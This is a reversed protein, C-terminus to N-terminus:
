DFFFEGNKYGFVFSHKEGGEIKEVVFNRGDDDRIVSMGSVDPLAIRVARGGTQEALKEIIEQPFVYFLISGSGHGSSVVRNLAQCWGMRNEEKGAAWVRVWAIISRM